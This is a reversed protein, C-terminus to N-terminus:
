IDDKEEGFRISFLLELPLFIIDLLLGFLMIITASMAGGNSGDHFIGSHRFFWFLRSDFRLKIM